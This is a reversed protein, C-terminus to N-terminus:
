AEGEGAGISADRTAMALRRPEYGLNPISMVAHAGCYPRVRVPTPRGTGIRFLYVVRAPFIPINQEPANRRRSLSVQKL